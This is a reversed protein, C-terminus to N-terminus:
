QVESIVDNLSSSTLLAQKVAQAIQTSQYQFPANNGQGSGYITPGASVVSQTKSGGSSGSKPTSLSSISITQNQPLPEQYQVLAPSASKGGFLSSIGSFLTGIGGLDLLGGGFANTVGGSATNQLISSWQSGSTSGKTTASSPTGFKIGTSSVVSSLAVAKVDGLRALKASGNTIVKESQNILNLQASVSGATKGNSLRNVIGSLNNRSKGM